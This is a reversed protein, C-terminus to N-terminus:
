KFLDQIKQRLESIGGADSTAGPIITIEASLIPDRTVWLFSQVWDALKRPGIVGDDLRKKKAIEKLQKYASVFRKLDISAADPVQDFDVMAKLRELLVEDTPEPLDIILQCRDQWAQNMNRCGELDINTTGVFICDPHRRVIEGTPLTISQTNDMAPNLTPVVGPNMPLTVEDFGWVGGNKMAYILQGPVFKFRQKGDGVNLSKQALNFAAAMCDVPTANEKFVGTIEQYSMVPDMSMDQASPLGSLVKTLPIKDGIQNGNEDVPVFQGYMDFPETMANAAFTYLPLHCGAAIGVYMETKGTGPEGRLLINRIPRSRGTTEKIHQCILMLWRDVVHKETLKPVLAEQEPTLPETRFAFSGVFKKTKMVRGGSMRRRRTNTGGQVSFQSLIGYLVTPKINPNGMMTATLTEIQSQACILMPARQRTMMEYAIDAMYCALACQVDEDNSTCFDDFATEFDTDEECLAHWIALFFPAYGDIPNGSSDVEGQGSNNGVIFYTLLKYGYPNVLMAALSISTAATLHKLSREPKKWCRVQGSSFSMCGTILYLVCFVLLMPATGGHINAWLISIVPLWYVGLVSKGRDWSRLVALMWAFLIYGMMQPRPSLPVMALIPVIALLASTMIDRGLGPLEDKVSYLLVGTLIAFMLLEYIFAGLYQYNFLATGVAHFVYLIISGLWSHAFETIIHEGATWSFVDAGMMQRNQILWEGLKVHWFYDPEINFSCARIAVALFLAATCCLIIQTKLKRQAEKQEM